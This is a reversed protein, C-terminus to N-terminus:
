LKKKNKKIKKKTKLKKKLKEKNTTTNLKRSQSSNWVNKFHFKRFVNINIRHDVSCKSVMWVSCACNLYFFFFFIFSFFNILNQKLKERNRFHRQIQCSIKQNKTRCCGQLLRSQSQSFLLRSSLGWCLLLHSSTVSWDRNQQSIGKRRDIKSHLIASKTKARWQSLLDRKQITDGCWERTQQTHHSRACQLFNGVFQRFHNDISWLNNSSSRCSRHDWQM